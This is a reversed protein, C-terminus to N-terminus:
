LHRRIYGCKQRGCSTCRPIYARVHRASFIRARKSGFLLANTEKETERDEDWEQEKTKLCMKLTYTLRHRKCPEFSFSLRHERRKKKGTNLSPSTMTSVKTPVNRSICRHKLYDHIIYTATPFRTQTYCEKEDGWEQNGREPLSWFPDHAM